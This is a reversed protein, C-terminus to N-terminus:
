LQSCLPQSATHSKDSAGILCRTFPYRKSKTHFPLKQNKRVVYSCSGERKEYKFNSQSLFSLTSGERFYTLLNKQKNQKTRNKSVPKRQTAQRQRRTRV